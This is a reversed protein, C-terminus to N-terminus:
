AGSARPTLYATLIRALAERLEEITPGPRDAPYQHKTAALRQLSAYLIVADAYAEAASLGPKARRVAAALRNMIPVASRTRLNLFRANGRDSELGLYLMVHSHKDWVETFGEIFRHADEVLREPDSFCDRHSEAVRAMAEGAEESLAYLLDPVDEFYVYFTAPATKAAKAISAVSLQFPSVSELLERTVSLLRQRTEKAKRGLTWRARGNATPRTVPGGDLTM